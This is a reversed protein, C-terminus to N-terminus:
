QGHKHLTNTLTVTDNTDRGECKWFFGTSELAPTGWDAWDEALGRSMLVKESSDLVTTHVPVLGVEM